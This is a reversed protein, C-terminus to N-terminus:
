RGIDHDREGVVPEVDAARDGGPPPCEEDLGRPPLLRVLQLENSELRALRWGIHDCPDQLRLPRWRPVRQASGCGRGGAAAYVERRVEGGPLVREHAEHGVRLVALWMNLVSHYLREVDGSRGRM